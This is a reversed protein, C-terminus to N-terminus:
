VISPGTEGSIVVDDKYWVFTGSTLQTDLTISDGVCAATNGAITLDDGINGGLNFSGAEIFVGSDLANDLADAIVLKIHYTEGPNVPAQATFVATRGDFSIPPGNNSIPLACTQVGTVHFYRIGD